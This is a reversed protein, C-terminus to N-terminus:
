GGTWDGGEVNNEITRWFDVFERADVVDLNM